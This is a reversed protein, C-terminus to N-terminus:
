SSGAIRQDLTEMLRKAMSDLMGTESDSFKRPQTDLVGLNGVLRGDRHRLPTGAYSRVGRQVLTPHKAFRDDKNIDEVVLPTDSAFIEEHVSVEGWPSSTFVEHWQKWYDRDSEILSVLSLPVKFERALERVVADIVDEPTGGEAAVVPLSPVENAASAPKSEDVVPLGLLNKMQVVADGLRTVIEDPRAAELRQKLEEMSATSSWVGILVKVDANSETLRRCLRTAAGLSGPPLASIFAIAPVAGSAEDAPAASPTVEVEIGQERLLHKLMLAVLEDAEDRAPFGVIKVRKGESGPRNPPPLPETKGAKAKPPPLELEEILERSTEFIFKQRVEALGGNHRDVESMLLAPVFIDEYFGSLSHQEVYRDAATFLGDRDMSLMRQYFQASPELPPESGLLVGIFKLGPVYHGIVLLCVTLPTSLFLGPLGWLWTWFVAAALLALTSIGTSAGYFWPEVVNNTAIEVVLFLGLTWFFMNWGPDVAIALLAPLVTAIMPGLFPIFRLLTALLGWLPAHPIGILYLGMGIFLGYGTNVLLQALLYRSVRHAADDVAQTAINLHGGSIVRIFRNRLDERQFLIAVVFVIVVGATGLPKALGSLLDRALNFASNGTSKLEVPVPVPTKAATASAKQDPAQLDSWIKDFAAISHALSGTSGPKKLAATKKHLNDEYRPLDDLLGIVQNSVHWGVFGLVVMAGVVAITVALTRPFRLRVLWIVIPSLLFALMLALALPIMVEEAVRLIAVVLVVTALTFFRRPGGSTEAIQM